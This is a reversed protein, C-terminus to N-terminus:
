GMGVGDGGGGGGGCLCVCLAGMASENGMVGRSGSVWGSLEMEGAGAGWCCTVRM